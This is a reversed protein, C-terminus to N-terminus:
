IGNILLTALAGGTESCKMGVEAGGEQATALQRMVELLDMERGSERRVIGQLNVVMDGVTPAEPPCLATLRAYLGALEPDSPSRGAIVALNALDAAGSASAAPAPVPEVEGQETPALPTPEPAPEAPALARENAARQREASADSGALGAIGAGLLTVIVGGLLTAVANSRPGSGRLGRAGAVIIGLGLLVTVVSLVYM